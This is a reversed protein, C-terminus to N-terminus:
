DARRAAVTQGRRRQPHDRRGRDGHDGRDAGQDAGRGRGAGARDERGARHGVGDVSHRRDPGRDVDRRTRGPRAPVGGSVGRIGAPELRLVGARGRRGAGGGVDGDGCGCVRKHMRHETVRVKVPPIDRVQRVVRGADEADALDAGCGACEGPVHDIVEDPDAELELTSGPAGPQKGPKRATPKRRDRKPKAFRDASPPLSSNGSNQGLRRTLEAVQGTLEDLKATQQEIVQAQAAVVVLLEERSLAELGVVALDDVM